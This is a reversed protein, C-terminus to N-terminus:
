PPTPERRPAGRMPSHTTCSTPWWRASGPTDGVVFLDREIERVITRSPHTVSVDLAADDLVATLDVVGREVPRGQDLRALLLLDEVLGAMRASEGGIRRMADNLGAEDLGGQRYLDAFARISAVPTRLEHSADAIFRRLRDESAQREDLMVNFARGLHGAETRLTRVQVRRDREGATIADAVETVEAIPRLGLRFIWWGALAIAVLTAAGVVGVALELRHETADARQLSVALLIRTGNQNNSILAARWRGSGSTSDVTQLVLPAGQPSSVSPLAPVSDSAAQRAAIRLLMGDSEVLAVYLDSFNETAGGIPRPGAPPYALFATPVASRLQRDLQDRQSTSVTKVVIWGGVSLVLLVLAGAAALRARLTM